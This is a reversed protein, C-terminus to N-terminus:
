GAASSQNGASGQAANQENEFSLGESSGLAENVSDDSAHDVEMEEESLESETTDAPFERNEDAWVSMDIVQDGEVFQAQVAETVKKAEVSPQSTQSSDSEARNLRKSHKQDSKEVSASQSRRKNVNAVVDNSEILKANKVPKSAKMSKKSRGPM